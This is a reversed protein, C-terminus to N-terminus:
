VRGPTGLPVTASIYLNICCSTHIYTLLYTHIYTHIYTQRDTQRDTQRYVHIYVDIYVHLCIISLPTKHTPASKELCQFANANSEDRRKPRQPSKKIGATDDGTVPHCTAYRLFMHNKSCTSQQCQQFGLQQGTFSTFWITAGPQEFCVVIHAMASLVHRPWLQFLYPPGFRSLM